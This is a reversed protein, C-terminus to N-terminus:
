RKKESPKVLPFCHRLVTLGAIITERELRELSGQGYWTGHNPMGSSFYFESFKIPSYYYIFNSSNINTCRRLFDYLNLHLFGPGTAAITTYFTTRGNKEVLLKLINYYNAVLKILVYFLFDSKPVAALFDNTVPMGHFMAAEDIPTHNHQAYFLKVRASWIQRAQANGICCGIRMMFGLPLNFYNSSPLKKIFPETNTSQNSFYCDNVDFYLGGYMFLVALRLIDSLMALNLTSTPYSFVENRLHYFLKELVMFQQHTGNEWMADNDKITHLWNLCDIFQINDNQFHNNLDNCNTKNFGIWVWIHYDPNCEAWHIINTQVFLPIEHGLWILHVINSVTGGLEPPLSHPLTRRTITNNDTYLDRIDYSPVLQEISRYFTM